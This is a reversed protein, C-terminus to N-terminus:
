NVQIDVAVIGHSIGGMKAYSYDGSEPNLITAKAGIWAEMCSESTIGFDHSEQWKYDPLKGM